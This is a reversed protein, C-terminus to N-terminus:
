NRQANGEFRLFMHHEAARQFVGIAFIMADLTFDLTKQASFREFEPLHAAKLDPLDREILERISYSKTILGRKM